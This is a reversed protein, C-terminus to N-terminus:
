KSARAPRKAQAAEHEDLKQMWSPDTVKLPMDALTELTTRMISDLKQQM